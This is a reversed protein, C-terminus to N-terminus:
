GTIALDFTSSFPTFARTVLEQLREQLAPAEAAAAGYLSVWVAPRCQGRGPEIEIMLFGRGHNELAGSFNVPAASIDAIGEFLPGSFREREAVPTVGLAELMRPFVDRRELPVVPHRFYAMARPEGPHRELYNRLIALFTRWGSNLTDLEDDWADAGFGSQVIRLVTEGGKAEIYYDIAAKSPPPDVTRLHREPEWLEIPAEWDMGEGFSLWLAGGVGPTVRADLPFWRKLEEGETLARWVTAADAAITIEAEITKGSKDESM